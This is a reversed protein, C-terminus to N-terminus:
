SCVGKPPETLSIGADYAVNLFDVLVIASLGWIEYRDWRYCPVYLSFGLFSLKDTRERRDELFFEVPVSFVSDLEVPDPTYREHASVLGVFPTVRIGFRSVVQNLQGIVQVHEPVLGIEEQAERLATDLLSSDTKDKKGGPFAVQGGHTKMHQSRQTLIIEPHTADTVPVLIGADPFPLPLSRPRNQQLRQRLRERSFRDDVM